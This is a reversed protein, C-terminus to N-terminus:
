TDFKVIDPSLCWRGVLPLTEAFDKPTLENAPRGDDIMLGWDRFAMAAIESCFVTSDDAKNVHWPLHDLAASALEWNSAEYPRGHYKDIFATVRAMDVTPNDRIYMKRVFVDGDYGSVRSEMESIQVGSIFEGTRIDKSKSVSTSEFVLDPKGGAAPIILGVHSFKSLTGAQIITSLLGKGSFLLVDGIQYTM